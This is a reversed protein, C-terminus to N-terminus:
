PNLAVLSLQVEGFRSLIGRAEFILVVVCDDIRWPGDLKLISIPNLHNHAEILYVLETISAPLIHVPALLEHEGNLFPQLCPPDKTIQLAKNTSSDSISVVSKQLM